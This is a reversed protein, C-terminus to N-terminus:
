ATGPIGSGRRPLHVPSIRTCALRRQASAHAPARDISAAHLPECAAAGAGLLLGAWELALAPGDVAGPVDCDFLAGGDGFVTGVVGTAGGTEPLM